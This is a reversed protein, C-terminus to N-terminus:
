RNTKKPQHRHNARMVGERDAAGGAQSPRRGNMQSSASSCATPAGTASSGPQSVGAEPVFGLRKAVRRSAANTVHKELTIRAVRLELFAWEALLRAAATAFGRRQHEPLTWYGIQARASGIGVSLLHVGGVATDDAADTM